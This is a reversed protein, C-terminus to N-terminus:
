EARAITQTAVLSIMILIATFTVVSLLFLFEAHSGLNSTELQVGEACLRLDTGIISSLMMARFWFLETLHVDLLVYQDLTTAICSYLTTLIIIRVIM